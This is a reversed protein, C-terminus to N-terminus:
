PFKEWHNLVGSTLALSGQIEPTELQKRTEQCNCSNLQPRFFINMKVPIVMYNKEMKNTTQEEKFVKMKNKSVSFPFRKHQSKDTSFDLVGIWAHSQM